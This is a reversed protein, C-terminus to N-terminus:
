VPDPHLREGHPFTSQFGSAGGARLEDIALREGHPFTSQFEIDWYRYSQRIGITGRAPVHISVIKKGVSLVYSQFREGHPFTSQFMFIAWAPSSLDFREGHPFTSQFEQTLSGYIERFDITGRAPVHISVRWAFTQGPASFSREGHPFTSQFGYFGNIEKEIEYREGHPFTSQFM